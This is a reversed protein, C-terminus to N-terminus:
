LRLDGQDIRRRLEQLFDPDDDPGLPRVPVVRLARLSSETGLRSPRLTLWLSLFTTGLGVFSVALLLLVPVV